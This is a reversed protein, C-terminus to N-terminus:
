SSAILYHRCPRIQDMPEAGADQEIGEKSIVDAIRRCFWIKQRVRWAVEVVDVM